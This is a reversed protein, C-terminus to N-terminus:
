ALGVGHVGEYVRGPVEIAVRIGLVALSRKVRLDNSVPEGNVLVDTAYFVRDEVKNIGAEPGFEHAVHAQYRVVLRNLAEKRLAHHDLIARFHGLAQAVYHSWIFHYGAMAGISCSEVAQESRRGVTVKIPLVCSDFTNLTEQCFHITEDGQRGDDTAGIRGIVGHSIERGGCSIHQAFKVLRNSLDTLVEFPAPM